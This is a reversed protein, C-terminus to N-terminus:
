RRITTAAAWPRCLTKPGRSVMACDSPVNTEGQAVSRDPARTAAIELSQQAQGSRGAILSARAARLYDATADDGPCSKPLTPAVTAQRKGNIVNSATKSRPLSEGVGPGHGYRAGTDPNTGTPTEALASMATLSLLAVTTVINHAGFPDKSQPFAHLM